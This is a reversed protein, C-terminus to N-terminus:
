RVVDDDVRVPVLDDNGVTFVVTQLQEREFALVDGGPYAPSIAAAATM